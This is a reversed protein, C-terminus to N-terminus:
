AYKLYRLNAWEYVEEICDKTFLSILIGLSLAISLVPITNFSINLFQDLYYYSYNIIYTGWGIRALQSGIIISKKRWQKFLRRFHLYPLIWSITSAALVFVLIPTNSLDKLAFSISISVFLVLLTIWGKRVSFYERIVNKQIIRYHQRFSKHFSDEFTSFGLPGFSAHVEKIAKEIPKSPEKALKEEVASAVHDLIEMEVEIHTFGRSHIFKKIQEIQDKTLAM